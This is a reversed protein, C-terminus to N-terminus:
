FIRLEVCLTLTLALTLILTLTLTLLVLRYMPQNQQFETSVALIRGVRDGFLLKGTRVSDEEEKKLKEMIKVMGASVKAQLSFDDTRRLSQKSVDNAIPRSPMRQSPIRYPSGVLHTGCVKLIVSYSNEPNYEFSLHYTGDELDRIEHSVEKKTEQTHTHTHTHTHFSDDISIQFSFKDSISHLNKGARNKLQLIFGPEFGKAARERPADIPRFSSQLVDPVSEDVVHLCFPLLEMLEHFSGSHVFVDDFPLDYERGGLDECLLRELDGFITSKQLLIQIHHLRQVETTLTQASTRLLESKMHLLESATKLNEKRREMTVELDRLLREGHRKVEEIIMDIKSEISSSLSEKDRELRQLLHDCRVKSLSMNQASEKIGELKGIIDRKETTAVEEVSIVQHGQHHMFGCKFCMLKKCPTCLLEIERVGDCSCRLAQEGRERESEEADPGPDATSLNPEFIESISSVLEKFEMDSLTETLTNKKRGEGRPSIDDGREGRGEGRVEDNKRMAKQIEILIERAETNEPDENLIQM